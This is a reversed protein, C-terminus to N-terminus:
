AGRFLLPIPQSPFDVVGPESGAAVDSPEDAPEDATEDAPALGLDLAPDIVLRFDPLRRVAVEIGIWESDLARWGAGEPAAPACSPRRPPTGPATDRVLPDVPRLAGSTPEYATILVQVDVWVVDPDDTDPHSAGPVAFTVRQRGHGDWGGVCQELSTLYHGLARERRSPAREDWSLYDFAYRVALQAAQALTDDHPLNWCWSQAIGTLHRPDLELVTGQEPEGGTTPEGTVPEVAGAGTEAETDPGSATSPNLDPQPQDLPAPDDDPLLWSPTPMQPVPPAKRWM